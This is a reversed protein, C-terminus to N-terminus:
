AKFKLPRADIQRHFWFEYGDLNEAMASNLTPQWLPIRSLDDIAIAIMRRVNPAYDPADVPMPLTADVLKQMEPNDYNSANFLNGKLYAFYFYYDPTDLWGGFNELLLPLRKEVLAITRWNAGPIKELTVNIGIQRLSDQILAAAPEGWDAFDLSFSLPVDFGKAYDTEALLARAKDLDTKYPFPQPWSIDQPTTSDGGWLPVGLGYAAQDFLQQYPLAWALAQRVRKDKFPEFTLNPCLTHICNAIPSGVVKVSASNKLDKADKNPIDFSLTVDGREILARRTALSPVERVIVREMAPVPGCTWNENRAYVIQQGPDWREVKFAGGGAPTRHLYDSAWPDADTANELALKSNIVIAVPVGLDPLSLKSPEKLDVRFTAEDVAVFQAPDVFGGAGMQSKPFGGLALAREFSWRVDEATVKTGDWFTADPRLRFTISKGDEASEWSEALEPVVKSYDFTYSGDERQDVGFSVLRDYVNVAVQYSPRNTGTRHIDLSNISGGTVIVAQQRGQAHAINRLFPLNAAALGGAAAAKFFTRRDM